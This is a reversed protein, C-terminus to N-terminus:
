KKTSPSAEVKSNQQEQSIAINLKDQAEKKLEPITANDAVSQYTAKANFYDKEQLYVDGLLIYAKAVWYDYSGTVKIVELGAKEAASLQNLTLYCNAIEYRAEAGWASKNVAAVEKFAAIAQECQNNAQLSKGLVLNAVAKDDTSLGKKTLLEKAADNAQTYDKTQYYSRVLGRLAELQNEPTTALEKLKAFYIKSNAYDQLEFYYIHAAAYASKEAYKSSGQNVVAQYGQLANQWDKNKYYCESKYFNALLAYAGQPYKSLYNSFATIAGACDGNTYKLEASAYTLSDAESISIVKGAKQVFDVYDNPRGVEVYINKMNDLAEDAQPSQPYLTVLKQYYKLAEENNNLNYNALGLKLYVNPFQGSADKVDLIKNLYPIADKFKEQVMYANAIQMYSEAVLDSKPYQQVLANFTKIKEGPNNIGSILAIQYLSYDSQPLGNNIVNQYMTKAISYNKQMFYCDASRAYADQKLASSQSSIAPAVQKFDALALAYNEKALYAYGLTYKAADPNAEGQIGGSSLYANMYKIVDDYRSLRYAVEGRWFNAFPLVEGANPDNIIKTLLDDAENIKGDNIYETARGFLLKPYVRLMTATPKGFSAYLALADNYNNTNALLNILIEKAENAYASTPYLDLFKNMESLAIDQYGLEYSLKAYNFRSIEQQKRNSNNNASYQFASRANEKQNTRLYLDGLLYMSNQGMSDKENSLQKFGEIAKEVQNGDYYCYSLEYMIEKSVKDSNDVYEKLLPLAKAFQKKEFYLQGILLNLDNRYYIDNRSLADQGYRLAEDKNGEFYYIQAIYYPVLGKYKDRNEVKKFSSLAEAYDRDRYSIYGYYYNADYYYKNDPLQHIENFLPKAKDFQKLSFYSYALEFKADAIEENSLNDYGAREYFVVARAFDNKTFYYKALHYSMMQQRPENNAADIFRHAQDEAVEQNLKLGCVIYYYELDQNLYAHSSETNEPYKDRLGKLLPYALSYEDKIFFDKAEKYDKEPDTINYNAQSFCSLTFLLLVVPFLLRNM